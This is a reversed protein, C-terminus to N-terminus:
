YTNKLKQDNDYEPREELKPTLVDNIYCGGLKNDIISQFLFKTVIRDQLSSMHKSDHKIRIGTDTLDTNYVCKTFNHKFCSSDLCVSSLPLGKLNCDYFCLDKSEFDFSANTGEYDCNISTTILDTNAKSLDVNRFNAHSIIYKSQEYPLSERFDIKANTGSLDINNNSWSWDAFAFSVESLDIKRLFKGSWVIRKKYYIKEGNETVFFPKLKTKSIVIDFMLLELLNKDYKQREGDPKGEMIIEIQKRLKRKEIETM